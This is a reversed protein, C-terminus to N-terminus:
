PAEAAAVDPEGGIGVGYFLRAGGKTFTTDVRLPWLDDSNM